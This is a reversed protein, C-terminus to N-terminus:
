KLFEEMKNFYIKWLKILNEKQGIMDKPLYIIGNGTGIITPFHSDTKKCEKELFYEKQKRAMFLSDGSVGEVSICDLLLSNGIFEYKLFGRIEKGEEKLEFFLKKPLFLNRLIRGTRLKLKIALYDNTGELFEYYNNM